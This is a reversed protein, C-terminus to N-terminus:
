RDRGEPGILFGIKLKRDKSNIKKIQNITNKFTNKQEKEYPVIFMDFKNIENCIEKIEKIEGITPIKNRGAQKSAVESIKQWRQNKKNEKNKDIKVVCRKMNTPIIEYVGLEVSKQIILEM